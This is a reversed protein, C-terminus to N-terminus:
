YIGGIRRIEDIPFNSHFIWQDDIRMTKYFDFGPIPIRPTVKMILWNDKYLVAGIFDPKELLWAYLYGSYFCLILLIPLLFKKMM